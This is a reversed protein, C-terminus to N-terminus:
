RDAAGAGAHRTPLDVGSAISAHGMRAMLEKTSAGTAAALHNGTHRLDHFHVDQEGLGAESLARQWFRRFNRRLLKGGLPGVFVLGSSSREAFWEVYSRLEPVIASPIAVVRIGAQSKPDKVLLEGGDLEAQSHLVHV